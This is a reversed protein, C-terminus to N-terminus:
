ILFAAHLTYLAVGPPGSGGTSESVARAVQAAPALGDDVNVLEGVSVSVAGGDAAPGAAPLPAPKVPAKCCSTAPANRAMPKPIAGKSCCCGSSLGPSFLATAPGAVLTLLLAEFLILRALKKAM